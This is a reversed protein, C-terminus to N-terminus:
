NGANERTAGPVSDAAELADIFDEVIRNFAAPNDINSIHGADPIVKLKASEIGALLEESLALPTLKDHEGVIILAPIDIGALDARYDPTWVAEAAWKYSQPDIRAMNEIVERKLAESTDSRLVLPVRLEAFERMTMTALAHHAREVISRADPHMAFTDALVMSRPRSPQQRWMELLMVGGMSLGVFHAAEIGLADLADCLYEVIEPRQLDHPAHESEGYGPYDLAVARRKESFYKLQKDWLAKDSGVGHLFVIPAGSGEERYGLRLNRVEVFSM